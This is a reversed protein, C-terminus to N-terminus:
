SALDDLSVGLVRAIKAVAFFSPHSIDGRELRIVYPNDLGAQVALANRTLGAKERAARIREHLPKTKSM